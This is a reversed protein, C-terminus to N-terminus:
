FGFGIKGKFQSADPGECSSMKITRKTYCFYFLKIAYRKVEIDKVAIGNLIKVSVSFDLIVLQKKTIM